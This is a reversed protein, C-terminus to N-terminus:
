HRISARVGFEMPPAGAEFAGIDPLVRLITTTKPHTNMPLPTRRSLPPKQCRTCADVEATRLAAFLIGQSQPHRHRFRTDHHISDLALARMARNRSAFRKRTAKEGPQMSQNVFEMLGEVEM